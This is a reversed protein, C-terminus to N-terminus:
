EDELPKLVTVRGQTRPIGHMIYEAWSELYALYEPRRTHEYLYALTLLPAMSNVNKTPTGKEFQKDFWEQIHGFVAKDNTIEFLVWMGYLGVGQAWEWNDWSKSDVKFGGNPLPVRYKGSNDKLNVLSDVLKKALGKADGLSMDTLRITIDFPANEVGNPDTFVSLLDDAM